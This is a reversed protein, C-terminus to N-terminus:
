SQQLMHQWDFEFKQDCLNNWVSTSAQSLKIWIVFHQLRYQLGFSMHQFGLSTFLGRSTHQTFKQQFLKATM